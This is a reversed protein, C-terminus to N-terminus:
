VNAAELAKKSKHAEYIAEKILRELFSIAAGRWPRSADAAQTSGEPREGLEAIVSRAQPVRTCESSPVWSIFTVLM